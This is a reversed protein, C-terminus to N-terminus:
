AVAAVARPKMGLAKMQGRVWKEALKVRKERRISVIRKQLLARAEVASPVKTPLGRVRLEKKAMKLAKAPMEEGMRRIEAVAIQPRPIRKQLRKAEKMAKKASREAMKQWEHIYDRASFRFTAHGEPVVILVDKGAFSQLGAVQGDAAVRKTGVIKGEPGIDIRM